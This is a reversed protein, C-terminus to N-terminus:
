NEQKPRGFCPFRLSNHRSFRVRAGQVKGNLSTLVLERRGVLVSWHFAVKTLVMKQYLEEQQEKWMELELAAKYEATERPDAVPALPQQPLAQHRDEARQPRALPIASAQSSSDVSSSLQTFLLKTLSYYKGHLCYFTMLM